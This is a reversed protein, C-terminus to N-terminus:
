PAARTQSRRGASARVGWRAPVDLRPRRCGHPKQEITVTFTVPQPEKSRSSSRPETSASTTATWSCWRSSDFM